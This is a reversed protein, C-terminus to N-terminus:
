LRPDINGPGGCDPTYCSVDRFDCKVNCEPCVNPPINATFTYGCKECKWYPLNSNPLIDGVKNEM